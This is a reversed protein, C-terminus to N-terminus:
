LILVFEVLALALATFIIDFGILLRLWAINDGTIPQGALVITTLQMAALLAPAFAPYLLLPLMLERLRINVTLASFATGLVTLGWTGLLLVM